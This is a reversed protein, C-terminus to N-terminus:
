SSGSGEGLALFAGELGGGQPEFAVVRVGDRVLRGLLDAAAEEDALIVTASGDSRVESPISATLLSRALADADLSKIRWPRAATSRPLDKLAYSGRCKGEDVFVVSDSMEELEALIHSSVLVAAGDDAQARVLKRLDVRARPDLGSAPEDLLLIRPRHVVTRAFGLRQKQGRSMTHVPAEAFSGLGVMELLELARESLRAKPVKYAAGFLELYERASLGEYVGFFDPMWGVLAHVAFPDVEPDKEAVLAVGRDAALLGALILLLTTKGAGNPGVLATVEGWSVSSDFGDLAKVRGFSRGLDETLIAPAPPAM